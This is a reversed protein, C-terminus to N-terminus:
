HLNQVVEKVTSFNETNQLDEVIKSLDLESMEKDAISSRIVGAFSNNYDRVNIISSYTLDEFAKLEDQPIAARVQEIVKNIVLADYTKAANVIMTETLNINTYYQILYLDTYIKIRVPSAFGADDFVAQALKTIFDIKDQIPLYQKIEVANENIMIEKVAVNKLATLKNFSVKAM